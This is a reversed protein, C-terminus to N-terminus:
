KTTAAPPTEQFGYNIQIAQRLFPLQPWWSPRLVVTAATAQYQVKVLNIASTKSHHAVARAVATKDIKAVIFGNLSATITMASKDDALSKFVLAISKDNPIVLQQTSKVDKAAVAKIANTAATQDFAIEGAEVGMSLNASGVQAGVSQDVTQSTITLWSSGDLVTQKAAKAKIDDTAKTTLDTKLAAVAGDVDTQSLVTVTKTTGGSTTGQGYVLSNQGSITFTADKLNFGDGVDSATISGSAQGPVVSGGSVSAGPITVAKDLTFDKSSATLKTGAALTVPASSAKNYLTVPGAAKTGINKTGTATVTKKDSQDSTLLNGAITNDAGTAPKTTVTLDQSPNVATAALTLTVTAKPLFLYVVILLLVAIASGIGVSKWPMKFPEHPANMQISRPIIPPLEGHDASAGVATVPTLEPEIQTPKVAPPSPDVPKLPEPEAVATDEDITVPEDPTTIPTEEPLDAAPELFTEDAVAEAAESAAVPVDPHYQNVKVGDIVIDELPEAPPKATTKSGGAPPDAKAPEPAITGLSNYTTFGVQQALRQGVRNTSVIVVEKGQEKAQKALLKLNILSQFLTGNKPVVIAVKHDSLDKLKDIVSTIEEDPELYIPKM